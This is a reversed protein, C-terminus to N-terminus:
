GHLGNDHSTSGNVTAGTTGTLRIGTSLPHDVTAGRVVVGSSCTDVLIGNSASWGATLQDLTVASSTQVRAGAFNQRRFEINSVVVDHRGPMTVGFSQPGADVRHGDGPTPAGPAGAPASTGAAPTPAASTSPSSSRPRTTSGATPRRRPRPRRPPSGPTTSS